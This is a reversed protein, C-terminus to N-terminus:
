ESFFFFDPLRYLRAFYVLLLLSCVCVCNSQIRKKTHTYLIFSSKIFYSGIDKSRMNILQWQRDILLAILQEWRADLVLARHKSTQYNQHKKEEVRKENIYEQLSSQSHSFGQGKDSYQTIRTTLTPSHILRNAIWCIFTRKASNKSWSVTCGTAIWKLGFQRDTIRLDLGNWFLVKYTQWLFSFRILMM